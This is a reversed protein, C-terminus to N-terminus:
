LGEDRGWIFFISLEILRSDDIKDWEIDGLWCKSLFNKYDM